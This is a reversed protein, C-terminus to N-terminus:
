RGTELFGLLLSLFNSDNINRHQVNGADSEAGCELAQSLATQYEQRFACWWIRNELPLLRDQFEALIPPNESIGRGAHKEPVVSRVIDQKARYRCPLDERYNRELISNHRVVLLAHVFQWHLGGREIFDKLNMYLQGHSDDEMLNPVPGDGGRSFYHYASKCYYYINEM